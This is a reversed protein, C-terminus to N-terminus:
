PTVVSTDNLGCEAVVQQAEAFFEAFKANAEDCFDNLLRLQTVKLIENNVSAGEGSLEADAWSLEGSKYEIGCAECLDRALLEIDINGSSHSYCYQNLEFEVYSLPNNEADETCGDFFSKHNNRCFSLHASTYFHTAAAVVEQLADYRLRLNDRRQEATLSPQRNPEIMDVHSSDEAMESTEQYLLKANVKVAVFLGLVQELSYYCTEASTTPDQYAKQMSVSILM